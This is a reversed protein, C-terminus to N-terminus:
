KMVKELQPRLQAILKKREAPSLERPLVAVAVLSTTKPAIGATAAQTPKDASM